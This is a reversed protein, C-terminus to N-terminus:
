AIFIDVFHHFDDYTVSLYRHHKYDFKELTCGDNMDVMFVINGRKYFHINYAVTHKYGNVNEKPQAVRVVGDLEKSFRVILM